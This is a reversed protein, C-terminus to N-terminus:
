FKIASNSFLGWMILVVYGQGFVESDTDLECCIVSFPLPTILVAAMSHVPAYHLIANTSFYIHHKQKLGEGLSPFVLTGCTSACFILSFYFSQSFL